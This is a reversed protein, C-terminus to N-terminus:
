DSPQLEFAGIDCTRGTRPRGRQDIGNVPRAACVAPDGGDIASSGPLLAHTRTPGGNDALDPSLLTAPDAPFGCSGDSVLNNGGSVPTVISIACVEGAGTLISNLITIGPAGGDWVATGIGENSRNGYLTSNTLVLEMSTFIAGGFGLGDQTVANGSFTSNTVRITGSGISYLGGGAIKATNGSFTSRDIDLSAGGTQNLVLNSVGGGSMAAANEHLTCRALSLRGGINDLGGGSYQAANHEFRCGDVIVQGGFQGIGGGTAAQNGRFIGNRIKVLAHDTYLGGGGGGAASNEKVTADRLILEGGLLYIGGGLVAATNNDLVVDHLVLKGGESHIGGGNVASGNRVTMGKFDVRIGQAVDFVSGVAGGDVVTLASGSGQLALDKDIVVNEEYIGAQIALTDGAAAGDVGAQIDTFECGSPCVTWTAAANARGGPFFAALCVLCFILGHKKMPNVM